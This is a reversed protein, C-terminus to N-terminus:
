QEELSRPTNYNYKSFLATFQQKVVRNSDDEKTESVLHITEIQKTAKDLVIEAEYNTGAIPFQKMVEALERNLEEDYGSYYIVYDEKNELVSGESEFLETLKLFSEYPYVVITSFLPEPTAALSWEENNKKQYAGDSAAYISTKFANFGSDKNIRSGYALSEEPFVTAETVTYTNEIINSNQKTETEVSIYQHYNEINEAFALTNNPSLETALVSQCASLTIVSPIVFALLRKYNM